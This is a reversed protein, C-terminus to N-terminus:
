IFGCSTGIRLWILRIWVRENYIKLIWKIKEGDIGLDEWYDGEKLKGVVFKCESRDWEHWMIQGDCGGNQGTYPKWSLLNRSM